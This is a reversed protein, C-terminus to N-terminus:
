VPVPRLETVGVTWNRPNCIKQHIRAVILVNDTYDENLNLEQPHTAFRYPDAALRTREVQTKAARNIQIIATTELIWEDM